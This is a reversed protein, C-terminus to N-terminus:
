RSSIPRSILPRTLPRKTVAGLPGKMIDQVAPTAAPLGPYTAQLEDINARLLAEALFPNHVGSSGDGGDVIRLMRVNFRAGEAASVRGDAPDIETPPILTFDSLYGGDTPAADVVDDANIDDWIQKTLQDM